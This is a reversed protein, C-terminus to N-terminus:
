AVFYGGHSRSVPVLVDDERVEPHQRLAQADIDNAVVHGARLAVWRGIYPTLDEKPEFAEQAERFSKREKLAMADKM